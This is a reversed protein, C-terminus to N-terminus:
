RCGRAKRGEESEADDEQASITGADDDDDEAQKLPKAEAGKTQKVTSQPSRNDAKMITTSAEEFEARRKSPKNLESKTSPKTTGPSGAVEEDKSISKSRRGKRSRKLVPEDEDDDEEAKMEAQSRKPSKHSGKRKAPGIKDPDDSMMEDQQASQAEAADGNAEVKVPCAMSQRKLTM